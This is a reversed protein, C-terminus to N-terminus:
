YIYMEILQHQTSHKLMEKVSSYGENRIKIM